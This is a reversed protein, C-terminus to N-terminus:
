DVGLGRVDLHVGSAPTHVPADEMGKRAVDKASPRGDVDHGRAPPERPVEVTPGPRYVRDPSPVLHQPYELPHLVIGVEALGLEVPAASRKPHLPPRADGVERTPLPGEAVGTEM